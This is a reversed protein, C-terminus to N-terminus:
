FYILFYKVFSIKIEYRQMANAKSHLWVGGGDSGFPLYIHLFDYNGKGHFNVKGLSAPHCTVLFFGDARFSELEKCRCSQEFIIFTASTEVWFPAAPSVNGKTVLKESPVLDLIKHISPFEFIWVPIGLQPALEVVTSFFHLM